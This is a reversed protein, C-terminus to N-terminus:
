ISSQLQLISIIACDRLVTPTHASFQGLSLRPHPAERWHHIVRSYTSRPPLGRRNKHPHHWIFLSQEVSLHFARTPVHFPAKQSCSSYFLRLYIPEHHIDLGVYAFTFRTGLRAMYGGVGSHCRSESTPILASTSVNLKDQHARSAGPIFCGPEGLIPGPRRIAPAKSLNM